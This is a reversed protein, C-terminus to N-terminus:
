DRFGFCGLLLFCLSCLSLLNSGNQDPLNQGVNPRDFHSEGRERSAGTSNLKLTRNFREPYGAFVNRVPFLSIGTVAARWRGNQIIFARHRSHNASFM